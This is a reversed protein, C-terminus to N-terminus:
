KRSWARRDPVSGAPRARSSRLSWPTPSWRAARGADRHRREDDDALAVEDAGPSGSTSASGSAVHTSAGRRRGSRSASPTRSGRRRGRTGRRTAAHASRRRRALRDRLRAPDVVDGEAGLDQEDAVALRHRDHGARGLALVRRQGLAADLLRGRERGPQRRRVEVGHPRAVQGAAAVGAAGSASAARGRPRAACRGARPGGRRSPALALETPPGGIPSGSYRAKTAAPRHSISGPRRPRRRRQAVPDGGSTSIRRRGGRRTADGDDHWPPAILAQSARKAPQAGRRHDDGISLVDIVRSRVSPSRQSRADADVVAVVEAVRQASILRRCRRARRRGRRRTRRSCRRRRRPRRRRSPSRADVLQGGLREHSKARTPGRPSRRSRAGAGRQRHHLLAHEAVHRHEGPQASASHRSDSAPTHIRMM